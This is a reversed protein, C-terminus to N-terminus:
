EYQISQILKFKLLTFSISTDIQARELNNKSGKISLIVSKKLRRFNPNKRLFRLTFKLYSRCGRSTM